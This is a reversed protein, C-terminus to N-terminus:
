KGAPFRAQAASGPIDAVACGLTAAADRHRDVLFNVTHMGRPLDIEIKGQIPTPKGDIWLRAAAHKNSFELGVRGSALVELHAQAVMAAQGPAAEALPLQGAVNSYATTWPLRADQVLAKGLAVDDLALLAEPVSSLIQWRRARPVHTVMFPGPKGLETLFRVLDALEADTLSHDLGDPMLSGGIRKEDIDSVPIVTEDRIPDRLVVEKPSERHLIGTFAKGTTTVIHATTYGERVVKGPLVISELLYEIPASTGIGSLDPGIHGGAGGLAHCQACGLAARRFITEGRHPDGKTKALVLLRKAESADFVRKKDEVGAASKLAATLSPAPTGLEVLVRLGIKASDAAPRERTLAAALTDAGGRQRLFSTYLPVLDEAQTPPKNLLSAAALAAEKMDLRTLGLIAPLRVTSPRSTGALEMLTEQTAPGGLDILADVAAQRRQPESAADGAIRQFDARLSPLKWAGGLRLAAASVTPDDSSILQTLANANKPPKAGRARAAQELAGLVQRREHTQFAKGTLIADLALAQQADDGLEAVLQLVGARTEQPIRGSRYLEALRPAADPARITQL